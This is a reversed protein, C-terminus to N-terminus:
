DSKWWRLRLKPNSFRVSSPDFAEPHFVRGLGLIADQHDPDSADTLIRLLEEYGSPGGCDEPPCAREGGICRPYKVKSVRPVIEELLVEHMWGDGFDYEYTAQSGPERFFTSMDVAWGPICERRIEDPIGVEVMRNGITPFRFAHLHVDKWGMSSQIAVHLDFMTYRDPVQIRRWILPEIYALTIKFQYISM